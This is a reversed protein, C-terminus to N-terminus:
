CHHYASFWNFENPKFHIDCISFEQLLHIFKLELVIMLDNFTCHGLRLKLNLNM